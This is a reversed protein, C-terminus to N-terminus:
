AAHSRQSATRTDTGAVAPSDPVSPDERCGRTAWYRVLVMAAAYAMLCAVVMLVAGGQRLGYTTLIGVVAVVTLAIIAIRIMNNRGTCVRLSVVVIALESGAPAM